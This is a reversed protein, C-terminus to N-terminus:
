VTKPSCKERKKVSEYWTCHTYQDPIVEQNMRIYAIFVQKQNADAAM